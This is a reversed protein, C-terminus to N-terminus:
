DGWMKLIEHQLDVSTYKNRLDKLAGEWSFAIKQPARPRNVKKEILFDIYDEVEKQLDPPLSKFKKIVDDM